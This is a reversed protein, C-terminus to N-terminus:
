GAFRVGGFVLRVLAEVYLSSVYCAEVLLVFEVWFWGCCLELVCRVLFAVKQRCFSCWVCGAAGHELVCRVLFAPKRRCFSCWAFGAAGFSWCVVFQSHLSLGAFRVGGLVM